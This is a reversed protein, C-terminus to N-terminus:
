DISLDTMFSQDKKTATFDMSIPHSTPNKSNHSHHFQASISVCSGSKKSFHGNQPPLVATTGSM